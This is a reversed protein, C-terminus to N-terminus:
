RSAPDPVVKMDENNEVPKKDPKSMHMLMGITVIMVM